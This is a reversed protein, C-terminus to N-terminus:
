ALCRNKNINDPAKYLAPTSIASYSFRIGFSTERFEDWLAFGNKPNM